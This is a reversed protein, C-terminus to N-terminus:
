RLKGRNVKIPRWDRGNREREDKAPLFGMGKRDTRNVGCFCKKTPSPKVSRSQWQYGLVELCEFVGNRRRARESNQGGNRAPRGWEINPTPHQSNAQGCFGQRLRSTRRKENKGYDIRWERDDNGLRMWCCHNLHNCHNLFRDFPPYNKDFFEGASGRQSATRWLTKAFSSPPSSNQM